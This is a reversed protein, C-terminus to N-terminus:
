DELANDREGEALRRTQKHTQMECAEGKRTRSKPLEHERDESNSRTLGGADGCGPRKREVPEVTNNSLDKVNVEWIKAFDTIM